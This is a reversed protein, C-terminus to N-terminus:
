LLRYVTIDVKLVAWILITETFESICIYWFIFSVRM